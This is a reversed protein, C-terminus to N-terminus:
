FTSGMNIRFGNLDSQDTLMYSAGLKFNFFSDARDQLAIAGGIEHSRDSYLEDGFFRTVTYFLDVHGGWSTPKSSWILGNTMINNTLEPNIALEGASLEASRAHTLSNGFRFQQGALTFDYRTTFSVTHMAAANGLEVSGIVGYAYAPTFSLQKTAPVSYAVGLGVGYTKAEGNTEAYSLPLKFTLKHGPASDFNVTYSLPANLTKVEDDDVQYSGFMVGLYAKNNTDINVGTNNDSVVDQYAGAAMTSMLSSPNGAVPDTPSVAVLERSIRNLIDDGEAKLFDRLQDNSESRTAGAFTKDIGLSDVKFRLATSNASYSLTMPLGRYNLIGLADSTDDFDFSFQRNLNDDDFADILAEASNFSDQYTESGSSVEIDFLAAQAPAALLFTTACLLAPSLSRLFLSPSFVRM